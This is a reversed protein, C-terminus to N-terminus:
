GEFEGWVEECVAAAAAPMLAPAEDGGPAAASGGPPPGLLSRRPPPLLLPHGRAADGGGGGGPSAAAPSAPAGGGGGGGAAALPRAATAGGGDAAGAGRERRRGGPGSFVAPDITIRVPPTVGEAPPPPPPPTPPPAGAAAAAQDGDGCGVAAAAAATLPPPAGATVLVLPSAPEGGTAGEGGAGAQRRAFALHDLIALRLAMAPERDRFGLGVHGVTRNRSGSGVQGSSGASAGAGPGAGSVLRAVFYRSSDLVPELYTALHAADAPLPSPPLSSSSSAASAAAPAGAVGAAAARRHRVSAPLVCAAVLRHGQAAPATAVNVRAAAPPAGGDGAPRQWVGITVDGRHATVRVHTRELTPKDLGWAAATWGSAGPRPPVRYVFVEEHVFLLVHEDDDDDDNDNSGGAAAGAAPLLDDGCGGGSSSGGGAATADLLLAARVVAAYSSWFAAPTVTAGAREVEAEYRAALGADATHALRTLAAVDPDRAPDLPPGGWRAHLLQPDASLRSLRAKSPPHALGRLLAHQLERPSGLLTAPTAAASPANGM